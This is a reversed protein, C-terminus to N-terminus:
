TGGTETGTFQAARQAQPDDQEVFWDPRVHVNPSFYATVEAIVANQPGSTQQLVAQCQIDQAVFHDVPLRTPYTTDSPADVPPSLASTAWKKYGDPFQGGPVDWRFSTFPYFKFVAAKEQTDFQSRGVGIIIDISIQYTVTNGAPVTDGGILRAGFFFRWHEPRRYNVRALQSSVTITPNPASLTMRQTTGWMHWPAIPNVAWNTDSV